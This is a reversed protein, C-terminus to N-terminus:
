LAQISTIRKIQWMNYSLVYYVYPYFIYLIYFRNLIIIQLKHGRWKQNTLMSTIRFYTNCHTCCPNEYHTVHNKSNKKWLHSIANFQSLSFYIREIKMCNKYKFRCNKPFLAWKVWLPKIRVFKKSISTIKCM